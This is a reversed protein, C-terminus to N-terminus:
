VYNVITNDRGLRSVFNTAGKYYHQHMRLEPDKTFGEVIHYHTGDELFIAPGTRGFFEHNHNNDSSTFGVYNHTHNPGTAEADTVYEITHYHGGEISTYGKFYHSHNIQPTHKALHFM